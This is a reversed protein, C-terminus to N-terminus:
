RAKSCVACQCVVTIIAYKGSFHFSAPKIMVCVRENASYCFASAIIFVSLYLSCTIPTLSSWIESLLYM